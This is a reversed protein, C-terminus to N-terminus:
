PVLKSPCGLTVDVHHVATNVLYTLAAHTYAPTLYLTSVLQNWTDLNTGNWRTIIEGVKLGAHAASSYRVIKTIRVGGGQETAGTIGLEAHCGHGTAVVEAVQAVFQAPYWFHRSSLVAVVHDTADVAIADVYDSLSSNSKTALYHVVGQADNTPDGLTTMTWDYEPSELSSKIIPAVAVVNASAPMPDLKSPPIPVSLHVISFGMVNDRGELTVGFNSKTATSGTIVATVPIVTTTVALDHPLVLATVKTRTAGETITLEVTDAAADRSSAPLEALTKALHAPSDPNPIGAGRNVMLVIGGAVLLVAMVIIVVRPTVAHPRANTTTDLSEFSPLESPHVWHRTEALPRVRRRRRWFESWNWETV